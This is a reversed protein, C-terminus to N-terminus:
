AADEQRGELYAKLGKFFAIIEHEELLFIFYVLSLASFGMKGHEQDVYSRTSVKLNESMREQSLNNKTRYAYIHKRLFDQLNQKEKRM